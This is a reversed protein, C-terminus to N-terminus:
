FDYKRYKKSQKEKFKAIADQTIQVTRHGTQVVRLGKKRWGRIASVSLGEQKAVDAYTM